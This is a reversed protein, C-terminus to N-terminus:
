YRVLQLERATGLTVTVSIPAPNGSPQFTIRMIGVETNTRPKEYDLTVVKEAFIVGAPRTIQKLPLVSLADQTQALGAMSTSILALAVLTSHKLLSM